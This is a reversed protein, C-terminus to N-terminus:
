AILLRFPDQNDLTVVKLFDEITILLRLVFLLLFDQQVVDLIYQVDEILVDNLGRIREVFQFNVILSHLSRIIVANDPLFVM